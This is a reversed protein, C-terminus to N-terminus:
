VLSWLQTVKLTPEHSSRADWFVLCSDDGVSCFEQMSIIGEIDIFISACQTYVTFCLTICIRDGSFWLQNQHISSLHQALNYPFPPFNQGQTISFPITLQFALMLGMTDTKWGLITCHMVKDPPFVFVGCTTNTCTRFTWLHSLSLGTYILSLIGFCLGAM